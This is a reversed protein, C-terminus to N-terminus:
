LSRGILAELQARAIRRDYRAQILDHRAQDLATRSTLVDLMTSAGVNYQEQHERLDEDAAELTAAQLEVRESAARYAGLWQTLSELAALEADRYSAEADDLSARAQASQSARQFQDFVPMSVGLRLAGSYNLDVGSLAFRDSTGSGGRSYAATLSPLYGAWVVHLAARAAHRAAESRQVAPGAIALRRLTADDLSIAADALSDDGAATVPYPTGVVRTLSADAQVRATRAQTIALQANHVLIESRLSDSRTVTRAKLHLVSMALQQQAQQLQATAAAELEVSALVDYFQQKAALGALSNQEGVSVTAADAQAHSQQLAFFRQGGEFLGVNASVGTSFSWPERSLTLVQGNVVQVQGARAPLQRNAGASVSVSPIFAGYAARVSAATARQQGRAHIVAPANRQALAVADALSLAHVTTDRGATPAITAVLLLLSLLNM